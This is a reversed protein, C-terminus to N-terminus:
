RTRLYREAFFLGAYVKPDVYRGTARKALWALATAVKVEHLQIDESGDGGGPGVRKLETALYVTVIETSQGASPPGVTLLKLRGPEYGTEEVLERKAAETLDESEAGAVDGALGAPLEVCRRGVPPRFQEILVIRGDDTVPVLVVIGTAKTREVYEWGDRRVLQLHRGRALFDPDSPTKAPRRKGM